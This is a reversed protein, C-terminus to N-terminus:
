RWGLGDFFETLVYFHSFDNGDMDALSANLDAVSATLTRM